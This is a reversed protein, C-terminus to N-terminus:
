AGIGRADQKLALDVTLAAALVLQRVPDGLRQHIRVVYHDAGTFATRLAGEWTKTISAIEIGSPLAVHFDWARWNEARLSGVSEGAASYLGFNIKGFVNAQILRGVFQDSGDFVELRSKFIKRPRTLRLVVSGDSGVVDFHHTFFQDWPGFLRLARKFRGQGIQRVHGLTRGQTDFIEYETIVEILKSRQNVILVSAGLLTGDEEFAPPAVGSDAVQRRLREPTMESGGNRQARARVVLRWAVMALLLLGTVALALWLPLFERGARLAVAALVVFAFAPRRKPKRARNPGPLAPPPLESPVVRGSDTV